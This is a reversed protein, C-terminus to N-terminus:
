SSFILVAPVLQDTMTSLSFVEFHSLDLIVHPNNVQSIDGTWNLLEEHGLSTHSLIM